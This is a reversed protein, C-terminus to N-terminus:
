GENIKFQKDQNLGHKERLKQPAIQIILQLVILLVAMDDIFGFLMIFDPIVDLPLAWYGIILAIALLKLPFRVDKSTFFDFLFPLFKRVRFIQRLGRSMKTM